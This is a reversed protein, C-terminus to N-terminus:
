IKLGESLFLYIGVRTECRGVHLPMTHSNISASNKVLTLGPLPEESENKENEHM